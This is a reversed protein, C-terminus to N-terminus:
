YNNLDLNNLTALRAEFIRRLEFIDIKWSDQFYNKMIDFKNNIHAAGSAGALSLINDWNAQGQTVFISLMEAFDEKPNKRAYRSVFGLQFAKAETETSENWNDEVYDNRCEAEFDLSFLKKQHFIHASEHFITKIYGRLQSYNLNAINLDNISYLTIKMGSEATALVQGSSNIAMSGVLLIVKPSNGRMFDIGSIQDYTELWMYKVIKAVALCKTAEAPVLEYGLSSEIDKMKYMFNINYPYTYNSLLWRDFDTQVTTSDQIISNDNLKEEECSFLFCISFLGFVLFKFKKM